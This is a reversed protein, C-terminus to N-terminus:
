KGQDPPKQVCFKVCDGGLKNKEKNLNEKTLQVVIQDKM